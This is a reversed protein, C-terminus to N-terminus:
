CSQFFFTKNVRENVNDSYIVFIFCVLLCFLCLFSTMYCYTKTGNNNGRDENEM